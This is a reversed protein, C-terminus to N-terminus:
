AEQRPRSGILKVLGVPAFSAVGGLSAVRIEDERVTVNLPGARLAYAIPLKLPLQTKTARFSGIVRAM